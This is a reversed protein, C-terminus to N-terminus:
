NSRDQAAQNHTDFGVMHRFGLDYHVGKFGSRTTNSYIKALYTFELIFDQLM